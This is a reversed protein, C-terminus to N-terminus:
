CDQRNFVNIKTLEREVQWEAPFKPIKPRFHEWGRALQGCFAIIVPNDVGFRHMMTARFASPLFTLVVVSSGGFGEGM